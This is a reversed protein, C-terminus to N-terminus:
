TPPGERKPREDALRDALLLVGGVVFGAPEYALWCGYSVLLVGALGRLALVLGLVGRAGSGAAAVLDPVRAGARVARRPRGIAWGTMAVVRM